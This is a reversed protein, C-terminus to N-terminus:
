QEPEDGPEAPPAPRNGTGGAKRQELHSMVQPFLYNRFQMELEPLTGGHQLYMELLKLTRTLTQLWSRNVREVEMNAVLHLQIAESGTSFFASREAEIDFQREAVTNIAIQMQEDYYDYLEHAHVKPLQGRLIGTAIRLDMFFTDSTPPFNRATLSAIDLERYVGALAQDLEQAHPAQALFAKGLAIMAKERSPVNYGHAEFQPRIKEIALQSMRTLEENPTMGNVDDFFSPDIPLRTRDRAVLVDATINDFIPSSAIRAPTTKIPDVGPLIELGARLYCEAVLMSCFLRGHEAQPVFPIISLIADILGYSNGMFSEATMVLMERNVDYEEKARLVRINDPSRVAMRDSRFRIVGYDASEMANPPEVMMLAHSFKGLTFFRIFRSEWHGPSKTLIVDGAQLKSIDLMYVTDSAESESM